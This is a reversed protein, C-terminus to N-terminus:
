VGGGLKNQDGIRDAYRWYCGNAYPRKGKCCMCINGKSTGTEKSAAYISEYIVTDGTAIDSAIVAKPSVDNDRLNNEYAHKLNEGHSVWELNDARNNTKNGDVHNVESKSYKKECFATAIIRHLLVYHPAGNEDRLCVEVYGTKKESGLLVAGTDANIVYGEDCALYWPYDDIPAYQPIRGM